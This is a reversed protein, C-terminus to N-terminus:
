IGRLPEAALKAREQPCYETPVSVMILVEASGALLAAGLADGRLGM